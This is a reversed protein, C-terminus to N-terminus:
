HFSPGQSIQRWMYRLFAGLWIGRGEPLNAFPYARELEAALDKSGDSNSFVRKILADAVKEVELTSANDVKSRYV